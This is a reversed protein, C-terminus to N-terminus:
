VEDGGKSINCNKSNTKFSKILFRAESFFDEFAERMLYRSLKRIVIAL